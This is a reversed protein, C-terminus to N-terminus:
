IGFLWWFFKRNAIPKRGPVLTWTENKIFNDYVARCEEKWEEINRRSFIDKYHFPTEVVLTASLTKKLKEVYGGFFLDRWILCNAVSHRKFKLNNEMYAALMLNWTTSYNECTRLLRVPRRWRRQFRKLDLKWLHQIHLLHLITELITDTVM